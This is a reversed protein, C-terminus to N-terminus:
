EDVDSFISRGGQQQPRAAAPMNNFFSEEDEEDSKKAEVEKKAQELDTTLEAHKEEFTNGGEVLNGIDYLFETVKEFQSDIDGDPVYVSILDPRKSLIDSIADAFTPHWFAWYDQDGDSRRVVFSGGLRFLAQTMNATTVGYSAAVLAGEGEPFTNVPLRSRALFVLTLAAQQEPAL